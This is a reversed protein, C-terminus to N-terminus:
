FVLAVEIKNLSVTPSIGALWEPHEDWFDYMDSDDFHRTTMNRCFVSIKNVGMEEFQEVMQGMYGAVISVVASPVNM